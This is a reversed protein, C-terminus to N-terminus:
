LMTRHVSWPTAYQAIESRLAVSSTSNARSNRVAGASPHCPRGAPECIAKCYHSKRSAVRNTGSGVRNALCALLGGDLQWTKTVGCHDRTPQPSERAPPRIAYWDFGSLSTILRGRDSYLSQVPASSASDLSARM